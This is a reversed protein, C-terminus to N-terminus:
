QHEFWTLQQKKHLIANSAVVHAGGTPTQLFRLLEHIFNASVAFQIKEKILWHLIVRQQLVPDVDRFQSLNGIYKGAVRDFMFIDNFTKEALNQLFTDEAKLMGITSQFKDNSRPDCTSLAPIINKRIRNRLFQDSANTPDQLYPINKDHLFSLIDNKSISLMPRVYCEDIEDMCRLGSLSSGRMLRMFFTEQQDQLHHGLAILHAAHKNQINQLFYRRLKRGVDEKSGNYTVAVPLHNAKGLVCPIDHQICLQACFLADQASNDRWQHDLHAAILEIAGDAHLDKLVYFLFISDPGGSLGLVIRPKEATNLHQTATAILQLTHKKTNEFIM